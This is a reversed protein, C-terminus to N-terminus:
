ADLDGAITMQKFNITEDVTKQEDKLQKHMFEELKRNRLRELMERKKELELLEERISDVNLAANKVNVKQMEHRKKLYSMYEGYERIKRITIPKLTNKRLRDAFEKMGKEIEFFTKKRRELEQIAQGLENKCKDALKTRVNLLTLFPFQFKAM